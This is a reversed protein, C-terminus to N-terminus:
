HHLDVCPPIPVPEGSASAAGSCARLSAYPQGTIGSEVTGSGIPHGAVRLEGYRRRKRNGELYGPARRVEDPQREQDLDLEELATAV